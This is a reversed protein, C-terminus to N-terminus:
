KLYEDVCKKTKEVFMKNKIAYMESQKKVPGKLLKWADEESVWSNYYMCESLRVTKDMDKKEVGVSYVWNTFDTYAKHTGSECCPPSPADFIREGVQEPKQNVHPHSECQGVLFFIVAVVCTTVIVDTIFSDKNKM